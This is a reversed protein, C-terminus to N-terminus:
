KEINPQPSLKGERCKCIKQVKDRNNKINEGKVGSMLSVELSLVCKEKEEQRIKKGTKREKRSV